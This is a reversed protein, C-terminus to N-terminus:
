IKVAISDTITSNGQQFKFTLKVYVAFANTEDQAVEVQSLKVYPLYKEVASEIEARVNKWTTEDNQDYIFRILNTGFDPNRLRQGKPTLILHLLESRTKEKINSNLDLAYGQENDNTFPFKIGYYQVNM